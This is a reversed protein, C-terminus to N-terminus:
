GAHVDYIILRAPVSPGLEVKIDSAESNSIAPPVLRGPSDEKGKTVARSTGPTGSFIMM